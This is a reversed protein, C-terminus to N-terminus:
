PQISSQNLFRTTVVRFVKGRVAVWMVDLAMGILLSVFTTKMEGIMM